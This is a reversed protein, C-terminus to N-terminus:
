MRTVQAHGALRYRCLIRVSPRERLELGRVCDPTVFRRAPRSSARMRIGCESVQSVYFWGDTMSKLRALTEIYYSVWLNNILAVGFACLGYAIIHWRTMEDAQLPHPFVSM